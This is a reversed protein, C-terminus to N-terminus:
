YSQVSFLCVQSRVDARMSLMETQLGEVKIAATNFRKVENSSAFYSEVADRSTQVHDLAGSVMQEALLIRRDLEFRDAAWQDSM